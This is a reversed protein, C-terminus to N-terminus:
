RGKNAQLTEYLSLGSEQQTRSLEEKRRRADDLEAQATTWADNTTPPAYAEDAPAGAAVFRSM